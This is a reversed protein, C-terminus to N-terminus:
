NAYFTYISFHSFFSKCANCVGSVCLLLVTAAAAATYYIAETPSKWLTRKLGKQQKTDLWEKMHMSRGRKNRILYVGKMNRRM